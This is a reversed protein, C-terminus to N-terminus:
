PRSRHRDPRLGRRAFRRVPPVPVRREDVRGVVRLHDVRRGVLHEPRRVAAQRPRRDAGIEGGIGGAVVDDHHAHLVALRPDRAVVADGRPRGDHRERFRRLPGPQDVGAGVVAHQRHGLVGPLRPRVHEALDLAHRCPDEHRLDHRRSEVLVGDVRREVPMPLVVELRVDVRAGVRALRPRRNRRVQLALHRARERLVQLVGVHQIEARLGPQEHGDIAPLAPDPDLGVQRGDADVLDREM